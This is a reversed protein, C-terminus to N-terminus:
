ALPDLNGAAFLYVLKVDADVGDVEEFSYCCAIVNPATEVLAAYVSRFGTDVIQEGNATWNAPVLPDGWCHRVPM